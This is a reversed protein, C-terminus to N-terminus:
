DHVFLAVQVAAGDEAAGVATAHNEFERRLEASPLMFHSEWDPVRRPARGSNGQGCERVESLMIAFPNDILYDVSKSLGVVSWLKWITGLRLEILRASPSFVDWNWECNWFPVAPKRPNAALEWTRQIKGALNNVQRM